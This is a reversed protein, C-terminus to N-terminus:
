NYFIIKFHPIICADPSHDNTYEMVKWILYIWALLWCKEPSFCRSNHPDLNRLPFFNQCAFLFFCIKGNSFSQLVNDNTSSTCVKKLWKWKKLTASIINFYPSKISGAHYIRSGHQMRYLTESNLAAGKQSIICLKIQHLVSLFPISYYPDFIQHRIKLLFHEKEYFTDKKIFLIRKKM